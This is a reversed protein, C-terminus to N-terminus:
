IICTKIFGLDDALKDFNRDIEAIKKGEEGLKESVEKQAKTIESGGAEEADSLMDVAETLLDGVPQERESRITDSGDGDVGADDIEEQDSEGPEDILSGTAWTPKNVGGAREKALERAEDITIEGDEYKKWIQKIDEVNKKNGKFSATYLGRVAEWTISQIQRPLLGSEKAALAYADAYAFYLGKIGLAPSNGTGTGFNQKVEKSNGSLPILLAAAVAHTDITVDGDESMPDIINNNFNRIKHMEGLTRTINDPSGNNYISVAKGIEGYSGWAVKANGGKAKKAVGAKNGDPTIIDYDKTTNVEHYTRVMYPQIYEPVEDMKKGLYEELMSMLDDSDKITNELKQRAEDLAQKNLKTKSKKYNNEAKQLQKGPSKAGKYLGKEIVTKQYDLMEQSLVPNDKYAMLVLEALRVNQYWDKQPSLSALIGAVQEPTIGYENALDNAIANAGDYWLTAIDKFEPDFQDMLYKLNDAVQRVFVDYVKQADEVTNIKKGKLVAKVLPYEAIIKANKIFQVPANKKVYDISIDDTESFIEKKNEAKKALGKSIRKGPRDKKRVSEIDINLVNSKEGSQKETEEKLKNFVDENYKDKLNDKLYKKAKNLAKSISEGAEVASAVIEVAGDWIAVPIGLGASYLKGGKSKLGRIIDAISKQKNNSEKVSVNFSNDRENIRRTPKSITFEKSDIKIVPDIYFLNGSESVVVNGSHLDGIFIGLNPNHYRNMGKSQFGRKELDQKIESSTAERVAQILPQKLIVSFENAKNKSFGLVEYKTEPFYTNHLSIRDFFDMWNEHHLENSTIKIVHSNDPSMYISSEAGRSLEEGYVSSPNEVYLNNQKAFELLASEEEKKLEKSKKKSEKASRQISDLIISSEVNIPGGEFRGREEEQSLRNNQLEYDDFNINNENAPYINENNKEVFNKDGYAEKQADIFSDRYAMAENYDEFRKEEIDLKNEPDYVMAVVDPTGNKKKDWGTPADKESFPLRSTVRFGNGEYIEMLKPITFNDLKIGGAEIAKKILKDGVDREETDAYKYLGKIEGSKDVLAEGGKVQVVTGEKIDQASPVSVSFYKSPDQKKTEELKSIYTEAKVDEQPKVGEQTAQQKGELSKQKADYLTEVVNGNEDLREIKAVDELSYGRGKELNHDGEERSKVKVKGLGNNVDFSEKFTIRYESNSASTVKPSTTVDIGADVFRKSEVRNNSLLTEVESNGVFRYTTTQEWDLGYENLTNQADVDGNRAAIILPDINALDPDLENEQAVEQGEQTAKEGQVSQGMGQPEGGTETTAGQQRPLVEETGPEQVAYQPLKFKPNNRAQDIYQEVAAKINGIEEKTGPDDIGIEKNKQELYKMRRVESVVHAKEDDTMNEWGPKSKMANNIVAFEDVIESVEDPFEIENHAALQLINPNVAAQYFASEEHPMFQKGLRGAVRAGESGLWGGLVSDIYDQSQFVEFQGKDKNRENYGTKILDTLAQAGGEEIAGEKLFGELSKGSQYKLSKPLQDFTVALAEKVSNTKKLAQYFTNRVQPSKFFNMDPFFSEIVYEAFAINSSYEAAEQGSYGMALAEDYNDALSSGLMLLGGGATAGLGLAGTALSGTAALSISGLGSSTLNNLRYILPLDEYKKPEGIFAFDQARGFTEEKQLNYGKAFNSIQDFIDYDTDGLAEGAIDFTRGLLDVFSKGVTGSYGRAFEEVSSYENNMAEDFRNKAAKTNEWKQKMVDSELIRLQSTAIGPDTYRSASEEYKAQIEPTVGTRESVSKIQEALKNRKQVLENYKTVQAQTAGKGSPDLNLAEIDKDIKDIQSSIVNLGGYFGKIDYDKEIKHMVYGNLLNHLRMAQVNYEELTAKEGLSRDERKKNKIATIENNVRDYENPNTKKLFELYDDQLLSYANEVESKNNINLNKFDIDNSKTGFDNNILSEILDYNQRYIEKKDIAALDQEFQKQTEEFTMGKIKVAEEERKAQKASDQAVQQINVPAQMVDQKQETNKVVDGILEEETFRKWIKKGTKPDITYDETGSTKISQDLLSKNDITSGKSTRPLTEPNYNVSPEKGGYDPGQITLPKGGQNWFQNTINPYEQEFWIKEKQANPDKKYQDLYSFYDDIEQASSFSRKPKFVQPATQSSQVPKSGSSQQTQTSGVKGGQEQSTSKKKSDDTIIAQFEEVSSPLAVGMEDYKDKNDMMSQFAEAAKQSDTMDLAFTDEDPLESFIKSSANYIDTRTM